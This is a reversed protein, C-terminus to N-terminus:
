MVAGPFATQLGSYREFVLKVSRVSTMRRRTVSILSRVWAVHQGYFAVHLQGDSSFCLSAPIPPPRIPNCGLDFYRSINAIFQFEGPLSTLKPVHGLSLTQGTGSIRHFVFVSPGVALALIRSTENLALASVPSPGRLLNNTWGEILRRSKLDIRYEVFRGDDHGALFATSSEFVFSTPQSIADTEIVPRFGALRDLVRLRPPQSEGVILFQGNPSFEMANVPGELSQLTYRLHYRVM